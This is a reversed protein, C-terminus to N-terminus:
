MCSQELAKRLERIVKAPGKCAHLDCCEGKGCIECLLRGCMVGFSAMCRTFAKDGCVVCNGQHEECCMGAYIQEATNDIPSICENKCQGIWPEDFLCIM